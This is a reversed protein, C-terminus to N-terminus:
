EPIEGEIGPVFSEVQTYLERDSWDGFATDRWIDLSGEQLSARTTEVPDIVSQPVQDGWDDLTVLGSELGPWDFDAQWTDNYVSELTPIYFQAWDWIPSTLYHDGALNKMPAQYGSAWIGANAAAELAAPSDQHQAMMDVGEDILGEATATETQPDFWSNTFRPKVTLDPDVSHAGLTFANMGRIVEPLPFAGVYGVTEIDDMRGAAQGVLYRTQYQRGFYIGIKDNSTFGTAHEYVVDPHQDALALMDNSFEFAAGFIVDVGGASLESMVQRAEDFPIDVLIETELWDLAAQADRRGKDHAWAWGLDGIPTDTVWAARLQDGNTAEETATAPAETQTATEDEGASGPGAQEPCGALGAVGVTGLAQLAARRTVLTSTDDSM